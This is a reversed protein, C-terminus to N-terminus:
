TRDVFEIIAEAVAEGPEEQLFHGAGEIRIDPQAGASPVLERFSDRAGHTIPDRNFYLVFAPKEWEGLAEVARTGVKAGKTDPDTPFLSPWQRAGAKSDPTHFPADYGAAVM